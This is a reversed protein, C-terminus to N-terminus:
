REYLQAGDYESPARSVRGQVSMPRALCRCMIISHLCELEGLVPHYTLVYAENRSTGAYKRAAGSQVKLRGCRIFIQRILFYESSMLSSATITDSCTDKSLLFGRFLSLEFAGDNMETSPPTKLAGCFPIGIKCPSNGAGRVPREWSLKPRRRCRTGLEDAGDHHSRASDCPPTHNSHRTSPSTATGM